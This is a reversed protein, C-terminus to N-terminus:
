CLNPTIFVAESQRDTEGDNARQRESKETETEGWSTSPQTLRLTQHNDDLTRRFQICADYWEVV